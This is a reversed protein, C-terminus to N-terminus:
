DISKSIQAAYPADLKTTSDSVDEGEKEIYETVVISKIYDMNTYVVMEKDEEPACWIALFPFSSTPLSFRNVNKQHLGDGQETGICRIELSM